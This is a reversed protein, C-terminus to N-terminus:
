AENRAFEKLLKRIEALTTRTVSQLVKLMYHTDEWEQQLHLSVTEKPMTLEFLRVLKRAHEALVGVEEQRGALAVCHKRVRRLYMRQFSLIALAEVLRDTGHLSLNEHRGVSAGKQVVYDAGHLYASMAVFPTMFGTFAVIGIRNRSCGRLDRILSIGSGHFNDLEFLIDTVVVVDKENKGSSLAANVQQTCLTVLDEYDVPRQLTGHSVNVVKMSQADDAEAQLKKGSLATYAERIPIEEDDVLFVETRDAIAQRIVETAPRVVERTLEEVIRAFDPVTEAAAPAMGVDLSTEKVPIAPMAPRFALGGAAARIAEAADPRFCDIMAVTRKRDMMREVAEVVAPDTGGSSHVVRNIFAQAATVLVIKRTKFNGRSNDWSAFIRGAFQMKKGKGTGSSWTDQLIVADFRNWAFMNCGGGTASLFEELSETEIKAQDAFLQRVLWAMSDSEGEPPFLATVTMKGKLM